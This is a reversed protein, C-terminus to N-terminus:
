EHHHNHGHHHDEDHHVANPDFNKHGGCMSMSPHLMLSGDDNRIIKSRGLLFPVVEELGFAVHSCSMFQVDDGLREKVVKILSEENEFKGIEQFIFLVEHIHKINEM